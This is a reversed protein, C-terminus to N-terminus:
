AVGAPRSSGSPTSDVPDRISYLPMRQRGYLRLGFEECIQLVENGEVETLPAHWPKPTHSRPSPSSVVRDRARETGSTTELGLGRFLRNFTEDPDSLFEEYCFVLWDKAAAQSIPVLNEVCWLIAQRRMPSATPDILPRYPELFDRVLRSQCIIEELDAEWDPANLRMRSGIVACPHRILYVIQADVHKGLWDLMLNARIEKIIYRRAGRQRYQYPIRALRYGIRELLPWRTLLEPVRTWDQRTWHNSIRGALLDDFFSMWDTHSDEARLYPGPLGGHRGWRPAGAVYGPHMPEFVPLCGACSAISDGIWTTGSRGSGVVFIPAQHTRESM